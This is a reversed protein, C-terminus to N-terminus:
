APLRIVALADIKLIHEVDDREAFVLSGHPAKPLMSYCAFGDTLNSSFANTM